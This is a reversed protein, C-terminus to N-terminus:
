GGPGVVVGLAKPRITFDFARAVIPDGDLNVHLPQDYELRFSSLQRYRLYINDAGFPDVLEPAVKPLDGVGAPLVAAFDLLGDTLDARPAVDFGGGAYRNNGVAMVLMSGDESSGDPLFLRGTYTKMRSLRVLGMLTYAAGGLASKLDKPTTATVEAGFGGSAVNIFYRGNVQGVDIPTAEGTVALRLAQTTDDRPLGAGRAFDNATGLPLVGLSVRDQGGIKMVQNVIVNVTGDGGGAIIRTVGSEIADHIVRDLDELDWAIRVQLDAGEKRVTSIAEAVDSRNCAKKHLLVCTKEVSAM